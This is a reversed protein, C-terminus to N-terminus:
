GSMHPGSLLGGSCLFLETAYQYYRVYGTIYELNKLLQNPAMWQDLQAFAFM